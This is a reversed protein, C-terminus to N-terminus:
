LGLEAPANWTYLWNLGFLLALTVWFILQGTTGMSVRLAPLKLLWRLGLYLVGFFTFLFLLVGFPNMLVADVFRGHTMHIWARTMGCGPCPHGTVNKFTCFPPLSMWPFFRALLLLVFGTGGLLLGNGRDLLPANPDFYIRVPTSPGTPPDLM